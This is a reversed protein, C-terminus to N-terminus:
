FPRGVGEECTWGPSTRSQLYGVFDLASAAGVLNWCPMIATRITNIMARIEQPSASVSILAESVQRVLKKATVTPTPTSKKATVTGPVNKAGTAKAIQIGEPDLKAGQLNANGLDARILDAGYLNAGELNAGYLNAYMGLDADWLDCKPCLNTEKLRKLHEPNYTTTNKAIVTSRYTFGRTEEIRMSGNWFAAHGKRNGLNLYLEISDELV